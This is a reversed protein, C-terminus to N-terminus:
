GSKRSQVYHDLYLALRALKTLARVSLTAGSITDISRNLQRDSQLVAGKFQDTFFTYQVEQGRTERYILVKVRDVKGHDVVIGTTIPREKGIEELIWASRGDREWYRIRLAQLPHGMIGTADDALDATLWLVQPKPVDGAFVDHVFDQPDQLVNETAFVSGTVLLLMSLLLACQTWTNKM